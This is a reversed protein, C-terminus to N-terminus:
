FAYQHLLHMQETLSPYLQQYIAFLQRYRQMNETQPYFVAAPKEPIERFDGILGLAQQALYAAGIASADDTNQIVLKKGTVDALVQILEKAQIVGGSVAIESVEGCVAELSSLVHLLAFCVGEAAAKAFYPLNHVPRIGAFVGSSKEDWIPAREGHLYPLFLLGASGAPVTGLLAFLQDYTKVTPHDAFLKELLWQFVNGGNNVAGGCVFTSENLRYNFIMREFNQVPKPSTIRVAASTGITIAARSPTLCLSGLNALCGDSGGLLFPVEPPLNMAAAAKENLGKKQYTVSAPQSLRTTDIGAYALATNDWQLQENNFLGTASALSHDVRYEAFLQQWIYEKTSIFKAAAAFFGPENQQLWKIKCLPSMSHLPTGTKQYIERGEPSHRLAEAIGSSRTDSWLMANTLPKGKDDVLLLSHMASSLSVAAPPQQLTTVLNKVCQLFARFVVGAEQESKEGESLSSYHQQAHGLVEGNHGLAIAKTSGTGIDIGIVYGQQM